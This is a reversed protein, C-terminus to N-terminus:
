LVRRPQLHDSRAAAPGGEPVGPAMYLPAHPSVSSPRRSTSEPIPKETGTGFDLPSRNARRSRAHCQLGQHRSAPTGAPLVAALASCLSQGVVIAEDASMHGM